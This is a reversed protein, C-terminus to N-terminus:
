PSARTTFRWRSAFAVPLLRVAVLLKACRSVYGSDVELKPATPARCKEFKLDLFDCMNRMTTGDFHKTVLDAPNIAGRIEEVSLVGAKICEQLWYYKAQM